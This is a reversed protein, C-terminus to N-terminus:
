QGQPHGSEFDVSRVQRTGDALGGTLYRIKKEAADLQDTTIIGADILAMRLVPDFPTSTPRIGRGNVIDPTRDVPARLPGNDTTFAHRPTNERHWERTRGCSTCRDNETTM